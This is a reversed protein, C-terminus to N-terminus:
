HVTLVGKMSNPHIDCQFNYTGAPLAPIHYTVKAGPVAIEPQTSPKTYGAPGSVVDFNHPASDGNSFNVTIPTNAAVDLQTKTFAINAAGLLIPGSSVAGAASSASSSVTVMGTMQTPHVDCHFFYTSGDKLGTVNYTASNGPTVISGQFLSPASASSGDFIHINHPATDENKFDITASGPPLTLSTTSFAINKASVAVPPAQAVPKAPVKVKIIKTAAAGGIVVPLAIVLVLVFATGGEVKRMAIVGCTVLINLATMLAVAVAVQRPVNLLIRSFLFVLVAVVALIGFPVGFPLSTRDRIDEAM